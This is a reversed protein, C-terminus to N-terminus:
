HIKFFAMFVKSKVDFAGILDLFTKGIFLKWNTLPARQVM